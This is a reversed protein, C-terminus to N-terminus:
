QLLLLLAQTESHVEHSGWQVAGERGSGRLDRSKGQQM